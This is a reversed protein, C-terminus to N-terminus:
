TWRTLRRRTVRDILSEPLPLGKEQTCKAEYLDSAEDETETSDMAHGLLSLDQIREDSIPASLEKEITPRYLIALQDRVLQFLQQRLQREQDTM